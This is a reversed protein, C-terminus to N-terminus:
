GTRFAFRGYGAFSVLMCTGTSIATALLPPCSQFVLLIGAYIGYNLLAVSVAVTLYRLGERVAGDHSAGFTLVRNLRWTILMAAGISVLRSLFPDLGAGILALLLGADVLFGLGGILVFRLFKQQLSAPRM